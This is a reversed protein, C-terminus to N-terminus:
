DIWKSILNLTCKCHMLPASTRFCLDTQFPFATQNPLLVRQQSRQLSKLIRITVTVFGTFPFIPLSKFLAYTLLGAMSSYKKLAKPHFAALVHDTM